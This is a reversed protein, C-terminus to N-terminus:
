DVFGKEMTVFCIGIRFTQNLDFILGIIDRVLSLIHEPDKDGAQRQLSELYRGLKSLELAMSTDTAQNSKILDDLEQLKKELYEGVEIKEKNDKVMITIQLILDALFIMVKAVKVDIIKTCEKVKDWIQFASMSSVIGKEKLKKAKKIAKEVLDEQFEVSAILVRLYEIDDQFKTILDTHTKLETFTPHIIRPIYSSPSEKAGTKDLCIDILYRLDAYLKGLIRALEIAQNKTTLVVNIFDKAYAVPIVDKISDWTQMVKEREARVIEVIESGKKLAETYEDTEASPDANIRRADLLAAQLEDLSNLPQESM